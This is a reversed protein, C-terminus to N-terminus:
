KGARVPRGAPIKGDARGKVYAYIADIQADTLVSAFAPMGRNVRGSKVVAVFADHEAMPGGAGVSKLLDAAVPNGLVDQGHCRACHTSYQRWGEYELPGLKPGPAAGQAGGVAPWVIGAAAVVVLAFLGRRRV